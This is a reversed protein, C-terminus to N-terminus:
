KNDRLIKAPVGAVVKNAPVNKTVVAGMGVFANNGIIAQNMINAGPAIYVDEGLVCSGGIMSQAIIFSRAGVQVNHAIHCLNDIKVDDSIITDALTGRSICTNAGIEVRNGVIVGGYDPVKVPHNEMDTYYGYGFAGIVVGSDIICDNGIVAKYSISVNNGIRVNDGIVVDKGIYSNYGVSLNKGVQETLIIATSAILDLEYKPPFFESLIEFYIYKPSGTVILNFDSSNFNDPLADVVILLDKPYQIKSLDYTGIAKIWTVCNPRLDSLPCHSNLFIDNSGYYEYKLGENSLYSLISQVTVSM